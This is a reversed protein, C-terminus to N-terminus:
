AREGRSRTSSSRYQSSMALIKITISNTSCSKFVRREDIRVGNRWDSILVRMRWSSDARASRWAFQIM